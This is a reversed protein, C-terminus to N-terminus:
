GTAVKYVILAAVACGLYLGWHNSASQSIAASTYPADCHTVSVSGWQGNIAQKPIRESVRTQGSPCVAPALCPLVASAACGAADGTNCALQASKWAQFDSNCPADGLGAIKGAMSYSM